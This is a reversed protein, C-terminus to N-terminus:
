SPCMISAKTGVPSSPRSLSRYAVSLPLYAKVRPNGFPTVQGPNYGATPTHIFYCVAVSFRTFHFMETVLPSSFSHSETLLPSRFRLLGFWQSALPTTPARHPLILRYIFRISFRELSPSLGTVSFWLVGLSNRLLVIYTFDRTFRRPGGRLALYENAVSLSSTGRPFPSFCRQSRLSISGSIM